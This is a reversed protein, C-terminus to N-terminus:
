LPFARRHAWNHVTIVGTVNYLGKLLMWAVKRGSSYYDCVVVPWDFHRPSTPCSQLSVYSVAPGDCSSLDDSTTYVLVLNWLLLLLWHPILRPNGPLVLELEPGKPCNPILDKCESPLSRMRQLKATDWFYIPQMSLEGEVLQGKMGKKSRELLFPAPYLELGYPLDNEGCM